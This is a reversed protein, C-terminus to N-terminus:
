IEHITAGPMTLKFGAVLRNWEDSGQPVPKTICQDNSVLLHVIDEWFEPINYTKAKDIIKAIEM